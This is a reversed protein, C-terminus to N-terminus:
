RDVPTDPLGGWEAWSGDYVAVQSHGLRDLAFAIVAASIGSGCSAIVPKDL